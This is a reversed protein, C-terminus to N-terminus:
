ALVCLYLRGVSRPCSHRFLQADIRLDHPFAPLDSEGRNRHMGVGPRQGVFARPAAIPEQDLHQAVHQDHAFELRHETFELRAAGIAPDLVSIAPRRVERDPLFAGCDARGQREAGLVVDEAAVAAVALEDGLAQRRDFPEVLRREEADHLLMLVSPGQARDLVMHPRGVVPAEGLGKEEEPQQRLDEHAGGAEIAAHAAAHM